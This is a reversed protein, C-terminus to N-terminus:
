RGSCGRSQSPFGSLDVWSSASSSPLDFHKVRSPSCVCAIIIAQLCVLVQMVIEDDGCSGNHADVDDGGCSGNHGDVDDDDFVIAVLLATTSALCSLSFFDLHM